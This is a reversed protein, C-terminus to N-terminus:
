LSLMLIVMMWKRQLIAMTVQLTLLNMIVAMLRTRLIQFFFPPPALDVNIMLFPM